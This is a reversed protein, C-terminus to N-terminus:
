KSHGKKYIIHGLENGLEEHFGQNAFPLIQNVDEDVIQVYIEYEASKLLSHAICFEMTLSTDKLGTIDSDSYIFFHEHDSGMCLLRLQKKRYVPACGKNIITISIKMCEKFYRVMSDQIVLRYGMHNGIYEEYTRGRYDGSMVKETKWRKIVDPHYEHNLYSIGAEFCEQVIQEMNMDTYLASTEGGSPTAMTLEKQFKLEDERTWKEFYHRAEKQKVFGYTGVDTASSVFSDNFLALRHFGKGKQSDKKYCVKMSRTIMRYLAPTRVAIYANEPTVQILKQFLKQIDVSNAFRSDHMEGWSGMFVGQYIYIIDQFEYFLCSLNEMHELIVSISDPETEMCAGVMDYTFRLIMKKKADRVMLFVQKLQALAQTSLSRDRYRMLNIELLELGNQNGLFQPSLIIHESLEIRSIMYWGCETLHLPEYSEKPHTLKCRYTRCLLNRM